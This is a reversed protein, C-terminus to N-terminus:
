QIVIGLKLSFRNYIVKREVDDYYWDYRTYNLENYRYGLAMFMNVNSRSPIIIGIETNAFIGGKTDKYDYYYDVDAKELPISYGGAVALFLMTKDNIPLFGKANVGVPAVSENFFEIGVIGGASFYPNVQYNHEMLVSFIGQKEDANSGLLAGMSTFNYYGKSKLYGPHPENITESKEIETPLYALIIGCCTEIKIKEESNEVIKGKIISGNKLYLVDTTQQASLQLALAMFLIIFVKTM